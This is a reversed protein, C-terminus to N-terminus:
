GNRSSGLTDFGLAERDVTLRNYEPGTTQRQGVLQASPLSGIGRDEIGEVEDLMLALIHAIV